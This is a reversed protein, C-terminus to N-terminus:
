AIAPWYPESRDVGVKRMYLVIHLMATHMRLFLGLEQHKCTLCQAVEKGQIIDYRIHLLNPEAM